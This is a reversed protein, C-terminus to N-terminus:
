LLQYPLCSKKGKFKYQLDTVCFPLQYVPVKKEDIILTPLGPVFPSDAGGTVHALQACLNFDDATKSVSVDYTSFFAQPARDYIAVINHDDTATTRLIWGAGNVTWSPDGGGNTKDGLVGLAVLSDGPVTVGSDQWNVTGDVTVGGSVWAPETVDSIGDDTAGELTIPSLGTNPVYVPIGSFASGYETVALWSPPWAYTGALETGDGTFCTYTNSAGVEPTQSFDGSGNGSPAVNELQDGINVAANAYEAVAIGAWSPSGSFTLTVSLPGGVCGNVRYETVGGNGIVNFSYTNGQDDAIAGSIGFGYAFILLYNGATTNALSVSVSLPNTGNVFSNAQVFSPSPM